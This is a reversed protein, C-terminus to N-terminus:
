GQLSSLTINPFRRMFSQIMENANARVAFNNRQSNRTEREEHHNHPDHEQDHDHPNDSGEERGLEKHKAMSTIVKGIGIHAMIEQFTTSEKQIEHRCVNSGFIGQLYAKNLRHLKEHSRDLTKLDRANEKFLHECPMKNFLQNISRQYKFSFLDKFM